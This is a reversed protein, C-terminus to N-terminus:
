FQGGGKVKSVPDVGPYYM